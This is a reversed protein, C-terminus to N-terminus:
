ATREFRDILAQLPLAKAEEKPRSLYFDAYYWGEEERGSVDIDLSDLSDLVEGREDANVFRRQRFLRRELKETEYGFGSLCDEIEDFPFMRLVFNALWPRSGASIELLRAFTKEGVYGVCGTSIMLDAGTLANVADKRPARDSELDSAVAQDLLGVSKGYAVAPQSVDLGVVSLDERPGVAKLFARDQDKVAKESLRRAWKSAYREYLEDMSLDYKLLAANVGYSCGLDILNTHDQNRLDKQADIM